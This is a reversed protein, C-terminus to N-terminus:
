SQAGGVEHGSVSQHGVPGNSPDWRCIHAGPNWARKHRGAQFSREQYVQSAPSATRQRPPQTPPKNNIYSPMIGQGGAAPISQLHATVGPECGLVDATTWEELGQVRYVARMCHILLLRPDMSVCVGLVQM